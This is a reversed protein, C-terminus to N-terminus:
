TSGLKERMYDNDTHAAIVRLLGVLALHHKSNTRFCTPVRGRRSGIDWFREGVVTGKLKARVHGIRRYCAGQTWTGPGYEIEYGLVEAFRMLTLTDKRSVTTTM